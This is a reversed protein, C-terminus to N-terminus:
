ASKSTVRRLFRNIDEFSKALQEPTALEITRYAVAPKLPEGGFAKDLIPGVPKDDEFSM